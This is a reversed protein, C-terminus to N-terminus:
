KHHDHQHADAPEGERVAPVDKYNVVGPRLAPPAGALRGAPAKASAAHTAPVVPPRVACGVSAVSVLIFALARM